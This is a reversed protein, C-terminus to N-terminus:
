KRKECDDSQWIIMPEKERYYDHYEKKGILSLLLRNCYTMYFDCAKNTNEDDLEEGHRIRNSKGILELEEDSLEIYVSKSFERLLRKHSKLISDRISGIMADSETKFTDRLKKVCFM